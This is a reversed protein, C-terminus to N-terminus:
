ARLTVTLYRARVYIDNGERPFINVQRMGQMRIHWHTDNGHEYYLCPQPTFMRRLKNDDDSIM